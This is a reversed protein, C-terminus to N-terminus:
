EPPEEHRHQDLLQRSRLLTERVELVLAQSQQLCVYSARLRNSSHATLAALHDLRSSAMDWSQACRPGALAAVRYSARSHIAPPGQRATSLRATAPPPRTDFHSQRQREPSGRAPPPHHPSM